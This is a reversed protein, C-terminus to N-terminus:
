QRWRHATRRLLLGGRCAANFAALAPAGPYPLHPTAAFGRYCLWRRPSLLGNKMRWRGSGLCVPVADDDMPTKFLDRPLVTTTREIPASLTGCWVGSGAAM